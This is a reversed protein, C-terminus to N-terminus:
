RKDSYDGSEDERQEPTTNDSLWTAGRVVDNSIKRAQKYQEYTMTDEDFDWRDITV